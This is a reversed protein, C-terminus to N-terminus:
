LIVSLLLSPAHLELAAGMRLWYRFRRGGEIKCRPHSVGREKTQVGGISTMEGRGSHNSLCGNFTELLGHDLHSCDLNTLFSIAIKLLHM